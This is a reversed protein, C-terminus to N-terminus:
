PKQNRHLRVVLQKTLQEMLQHCHLAVSSSSIDITDSTQDWIIGSFPMEAEFAHRRRLFDARGGKYKHAVSDRVHKFADLKRLEDQTLWEDIDTPVHAEWMAFLYVLLSGEILSHVGKKIEATEKPYNPYSVRDAILFKGSVIHGFERQLSGMQESMLELAKEFGQHPNM